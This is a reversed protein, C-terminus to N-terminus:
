CHNWYGAPGRTATIKAAGGNGGGDAVVCTSRSGGGDAVVWNSCGGGDAIVCGGCGVSGEAVVCGSCSGPDAYVPAAFALTAIAAIAFILKRMPLRGDDFIPLLKRVRISDAATITTV